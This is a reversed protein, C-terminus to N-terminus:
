KKGKAEAKEKNQAVRYKVIKGVLGVPIPEDLPFQISGKGMEYKSLEKEFEKIAAPAPYFGVHKKYGAFHVLNGHLVYTPMSWKIAEEAKPANKRIANRIEHLRKQVNEPFSDIYEDITKATTTIMANLNIRLYYIQSFYFPQMHYEVEAKHNEASKTLCIFYLM